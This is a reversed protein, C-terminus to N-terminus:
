AVACCASSNAGSGGSSAAVTTNARSSVASESGRPGPVGASQGAAAHAQTPSAAPSTAGGHNLTCRPLLGSMAALTGVQWPTESSTRFDLDTQQRFPRSTGYTLLQKLNASCCTKLALFDICARPPASTDRWVRDTCEKLAALAARLVDGEEPGCDGSLRLTLTSSSLVVSYALAPTPGGGGSRSPFSAM